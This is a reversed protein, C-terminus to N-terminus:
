YKNQMQARRDWLPKLARRLDRYLLYNDEYVSSPKAQYVHAVKCCHHVADEVDHYVGVALGATMAAGRAAFARGRCVITDVDLCDAIIRPFVGDTTENGSMLVRKAIGHDAMADRLSYACAEYVARIM